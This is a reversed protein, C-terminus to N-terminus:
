IGQNNLEDSLKKAESTSPGLRSLIILYGCGRGVLWCAMARGLGGLDEQLSM